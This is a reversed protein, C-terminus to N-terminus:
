PNKNEKPASTDGKLTMIPTKACTCPASSDKFKEKASRLQTQM